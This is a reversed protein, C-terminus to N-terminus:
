LRFQSNFALGIKISREINLQGIKKIDVYKKIEVLYPIYTKQYM